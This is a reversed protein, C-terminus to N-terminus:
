FIPPKSKASHRSGDPIESVPRSAAGSVIQAAQLVSKGQEPLSCFPSAPLIIRGNM